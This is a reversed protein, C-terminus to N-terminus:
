AYDCLGGCSPSQEHLDIYLHPLFANKQLVQWFSLQPNLKNEKKIRWFLILSSAVWKGDTQGKLKDLPKCEQKELFNVCTAVNLILSFESKSSFFGSLM